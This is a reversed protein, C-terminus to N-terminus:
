IVPLKRTIVSSPTRSTVSYTLLSIAPCASIMTSFFTVSFVASSCCVTSPRSLLTDLLVVFMVTRSLPKFDNLEVTAFWVVLIFCFALSM